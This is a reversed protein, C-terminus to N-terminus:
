GGVPEGFQRALFSDLSSRHEDNPFTEWLRWAKIVDGRKAPDHAFKAVAAPMSAGEADFSFAGDLTAPPDKPTVRRYSGVFANFAAEGHESMARLEDRTEDDIPYGDNELGVVAAAFMSERKERADRERAQRELAFVRGKLDGEAATMQGSTEGASMAPVPEDSTEMEAEATEGMRGTIAEMIADLDKVPIDGSKIAKCIAGVDLAEGEMMQAEDKDPETVKEPEMFHGEPQGHFSFHALALPEAENTEGLDFAEAFERKEGITLLPYEFFPPESDLLGLAGFTLPEWERIEVSRYPWDNETIQRFAYDKVNILNAFLTPVAGRKTQLPRVETPLFFGVGKTPHHRDNHYLNLRALFAGSEHGARHESIATQLDAETIDRPAGKTGKEIVSFIPVGFIDWTGDANQKADYLGGPIDAFLTSDLGRTFPKTATTM